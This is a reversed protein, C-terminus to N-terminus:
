FGVNLRATFYSPPPLTQFDNPIDDQGYNSEPDIGSYSSWTKLNRASLTLSLSRGRVVRAFRSASLTLSLERLRWFSAPEIFGAQTRSVSSTVALARAQEDLPATPDVLGRCNLRNQCRIRETGNYLMFDGKHDVLAGIHVARRFLDIGNSLTIETRPQSYGLFAVSDAV